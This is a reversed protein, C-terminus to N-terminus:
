PQFPEYYVLTELWYCISRIRVFFGSISTDSSKVNVSARQESIVYQIGNARIEEGFIRIM